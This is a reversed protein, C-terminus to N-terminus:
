VHNALTQDPNHMALKGNPHFAAKNGAKQLQPEGSHWSTRFAVVNKSSPAEIRNFERELPKHHAAVVRQLRIQLQWDEIGLLTLCISASKARRRDQLQYPVRSDGGKHAIFTIM